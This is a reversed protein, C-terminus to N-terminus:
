KEEQITKSAAFAKRRRWAGSAVCAIGGLEMIADVNEGFDVGVHEFAAARMVAFVLLLVVGFLSLRLEGSHRRAISFIGVALAVSLTVLTAVFAAQVYSRQAYWGEHQAMEKGIQTLLTQLDLQKNLGLLLTGAMLVLWVPERLGVSRARLFSQLCCWAAVFYAVTILWGIWTPDGIGPSWTISGSNHVCRQISGTIMPHSATQVEGMQHRCETTVAESVRSCRSEM